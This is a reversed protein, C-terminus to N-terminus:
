EKVLPHIYFYTDDYKYEYSDIYAIMEEDSRGSREINMKECWTDIALGITDYTDAWVDDFPAGCSDVVCEEPFFDAEDHVCFIGCGPEIERYSITLENWLVKNIAYFLDHCGTWATETEITLLYFGDEPNSELESFYIHGRVSIGKNEFDIGYYRALDSLWIKSSKENMDQLTHWLDMIAKRSGTIKYTTDCTNAM